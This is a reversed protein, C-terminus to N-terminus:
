LDLNQLYHNVEKKAEEFAMKRAERRSCFGHITVTVEGKIKGTVANGGPSKVTKFPCEYTMKFNKVLPLASNGSYVPEGLTAEIEIPPHDSSHTLDDLTENKYTLDDLTENKYRLVLHYSLHNKEGSHSQGTTATQSVTLASKYLSANIVGSERLVILCLLVCGIILLATEKRNM